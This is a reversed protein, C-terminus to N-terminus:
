EDIPEGETTRLSSGRGLHLNYLDELTMKSFKMARLLVERRGENMLSRDPKGEVASPEIAHCFTMLDVLVIQGAPCGFTVAYARMLEAAKDEIDSM